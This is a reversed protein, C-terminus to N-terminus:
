VFRQRCNRPTDHGAVPPFCGTSRAIIEAPQDPRAPFYWGKMVECLFGNRILRERHIRSLDSSRIAVKGAAQLGQLQELAQALKEAPSVM